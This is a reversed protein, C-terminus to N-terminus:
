VVIREHEVGPYYGFYNDFTHNEQVIVFVHKIPIASAPASAAAVPSFPSAVLLSLLLLPLLGRRNKMTQREPIEHRNITQGPAPWSLAAPPRNRVFAVLIRNGDSM